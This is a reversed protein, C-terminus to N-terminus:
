KGLDSAGTEHLHQSEIWNDKLLDTMVEHKQSPDGNNHTYSSTAEGTLLLEVEM